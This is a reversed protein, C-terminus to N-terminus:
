REGPGPPVVTGRLLISPDRAARTALPKMTRTLYDLDGAAQNLEPLLQTRLQRAAAGSTNLLPKLDRSDHEANSILAALTKSNAALTVVVDQTAEASRKLSAVTKEDFVLGIQRSDKELNTALSRLRDENTVLLSLLERMDSASEKLSSVVSPDFLNQLLHTLTQTEQFATVATTDVTDIQPAGAAIVPRRHGVDSVLPGRDTGTDELAIYVYGMFGRAALGRATLVATTARTIPANRDISLDIDVTRPDTLRIRSVTGIEVGHM